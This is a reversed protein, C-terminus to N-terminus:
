NLQLLICTTPLAQYLDGLNRYLNYFAHKMLTEHTSDGSLQQVSNGNLTLLVRNLKATKGDDKLAKGHIDFGDKDTVLPLREIPTTKWNGQWTDEPVFLLLLSDPNISSQTLADMTCSQLGSPITMKKIEYRELPFELPAAQLKKELDLALSANLTKVPCILSASEIKLYYKMTEGSLAGDNFCQMYFVPDQFVIELRAAVGSVM